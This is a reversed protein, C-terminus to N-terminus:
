VWQESERDARLFPPIPVIVVTIEHIHRYIFTIIAADASFFCQITCANM